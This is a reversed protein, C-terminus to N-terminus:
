RKGFTVTKGAPFSSIRSEEAQFGMAEKRQQYTPLDFATDTKADAPKGLQMMTNTLGYSFASYGVMMALELEPESRKGKGFGLKPAHKRHLRDFVDDYSDINAMITESWGSLKGRIPTKSHAFELGSAVAMLVRRQVKVSQRLVMESELRLLEFRVDDLSSLRTMVPGQIKNASKIKAIRAIMGAKQDEELMARQAESEPTCEDDDDFEDDDTDDTDHGGGEEFGSFFGEGPPQGRPGLSPLVGKDMPTKLKSTASLVSPPPMSSPTSSGGGVRIGDGVDSDSM